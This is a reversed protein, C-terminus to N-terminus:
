SGIEQAPKQIERCDCEFHHGMHSPERVAIVEVYRGALSFLDERQVDETTACYLVHSVKAQEQQAVTQESASAPRLRGVLNGLDAYAIAWGGQGDSTRTPRFHALTHIYLSEIVLM